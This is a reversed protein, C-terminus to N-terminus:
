TPRSETSGDAWSIPRFGEDRLGLFDKSHSLSAKAKAGIDSLVACCSSVAWHGFLQYRWAIGEM